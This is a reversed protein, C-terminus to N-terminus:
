IVGLRMENHQEEANEAFACLASRGAIHPRALVHDATQESAFIGFITSFQSAVTV